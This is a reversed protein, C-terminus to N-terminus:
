FAPVGSVGMSVQNCVYFNIYHLNSNDTKGNRKISGGLVHHIGCIFYTSSIIIMKQQSYAIVVPDVSMLSSLQASFIASLMGFAAGLGMSIVAGRTVAQKARKINGKGVNQSVYPMVAISPAVSIQYLIGDFRNAISIGTTAEPGFSNVAATISVNAVSSIAQQIGAPIGIILM